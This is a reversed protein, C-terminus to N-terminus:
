GVGFAENAVIKMDLFGVPLAYQIYVAAIDALSALDQMALCRRQAMVTLTNILTQRLTQGDRSIM